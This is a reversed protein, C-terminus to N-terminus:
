ECGDLGLIWAEILARGLPDVRGSGLPPMQGEGRTALRLWLNSDGPDGPAIRKSGEVDPSPFEISHGCTQTDAFSTTWRLDPRMWAPQHCHACNAHLWARARAELPATEDSPDVLRPLGAPDGPSHEFLGLEALADLQEREQEGYRVVRNMQLSTPGLPEGEGFGHCTRCGVESPFEWVFRESGEPGAVSLEVSAGEGLRDADSGDERWRYSYFDWTGARRVMFRTEIPARTSPDALSAELAFTKILVSGEPFDWRGREDIAITQEPPVVMWRQKILGDSWLPAGVRYPILGPTADSSSGAAFCATASVREPLTGPLGHEALGLRVLRGEGDIAWPDGAADRGLAAVGEGVRGLVEVRALGESPSPDLGWVRGSCRDAWITAGALMPVEGGEVRAGLVLECHEGDPLRYDFSPGLYLTPDCDGPGTCAWGETAPWGLNGGAQVRDLEERQGSGHDAIWRDDGAIVLHRPDHLGIMYIEPRAQPDALLPNDPPIAYGIVPESPAAIRLLSGRLDGRDQALASAPSPDPASTGDGVGIWVYGQEDVALAGGVAGSEVGASGLDFEIMTLAEGVDVESAAPDFPIRVVRTRQPALARHFYAYIWGEGIALALLGRTPSGAVESSLDLWPQPERAGEGDVRWIAGGREVVLLGEGDPDGLLGVPDVFPEGAAPSEARLRPLAGAPTGQMTCAITSPRPELPPLSSEDDVEGTDTDESAEGQEHGSPEGACALTQSALAFGLTLSRPGLVGRIKASM